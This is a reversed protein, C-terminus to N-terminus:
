LGPSPTGDAEGALKLSSTATVQGRQDRIHARAPPGGSDLAALIRQAGFTPAMLRYSYQSGVMTIGSRRILEGMLLAQLPGHVVLDPYGEEVAYTRDYHIRHANYTLASFRFLMVPDIDLELLHERERSTGPSEKGVDPLPNQHPGPPRYVIDYEDIIAVRRAQQIEERMTVFTLPGTRGQKSATRLVWARKTAPEGFRLLCRTTVRGGAFMRRWGPGPPATIGNAPHGDRGLESQRPRQLLYIWHWLPPLHERGVPPLGINVLLGALAEAPEPNIVESRHRVQGDPGPHCANTM